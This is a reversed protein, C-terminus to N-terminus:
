YTGEAIHQAATKDFRDMNNLRDALQTNSTNFGRASIAQRIQDASMTQYDLIMDGEAQNFDKIVSRNTGKGLVFIDAGANGEASVDERDVFVIDNGLGGLLTDAGLDGSIADNGQGGHVYDADKGGRIIDNGENGYLFDAGQNGLLHDDGQAGSINDAGLDGNINDAGATGTLTESNATGQLTINTNTNFTTNSVFNNNNTVTPPTATNTGSGTFGLSSLRARSSSLVESMWSSYNGDDGGLQNISTFGGGLGSNSNDDGVSDRVSRLRSEVLNDFSTRTVPSQYVPANNAGGSGFIRNWYDFM